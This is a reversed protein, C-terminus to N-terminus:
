PDVDPRAPNGSVRSGAAVNKLVVAGPAIEASDGITVGKLIAANPGIRVDNGIHVPQVMRSPRTSRDGGPALAVTDAIREAPAVPHFDSDAITTGVGVIVRDGIVISEECVLSANAFYCDDGITIAAKEGVSLSSRWFVANRGTKLGCKRESKFYYFAHASDIVTGEGAEINDPVPRDFWDGEIFAGPVLVHFDPPGLKM